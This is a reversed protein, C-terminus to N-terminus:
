SPKLYKSITLCSLGTVYACSTGESEENLAFEAYAPANVDTDFKYPVGFERVGLHGLVDAHDWGPKPTSTIYGFYKSSPNADIPGFSAVGIADFKRAQLWEKIKGKM